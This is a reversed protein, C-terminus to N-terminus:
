LCYTRHTEPIGRIIYTPTILFPLNRYNVSVDSSVCM